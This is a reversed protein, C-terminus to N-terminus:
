FSIRCYNMRRWLSEEVIYLYNVVSWTTANHYLALVYRRFTCASTSRFQVVPRPYDNHCRVTIPIRHIHNAGKHICRFIRAGLTIANANADCESLSQATHSSHSFFKCGGCLMVVCFCKRLIGPLIYTRLYKSAVQFVLGICRLLTFM